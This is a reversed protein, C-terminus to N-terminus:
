HGYVIIRPDHFGVCSPVFGMSSSAHLDIEVHLLMDESRYVLKM